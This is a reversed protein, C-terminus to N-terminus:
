IGTPLTLNHLYIMSLPTAHSIIEWQTGFFSSVDSVVVKYLPFILARTACHGTSLLQWTLSQAARRFLFSSLAAAARGRWVLAQSFVLGKCVNAQLFLNSAVALKKGRKM